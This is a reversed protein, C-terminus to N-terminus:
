FPGGRMAKDAMAAIEAEREALRRQMIEWAVRESHQRRLSPWDKWLGLREMEKMASLDARKWEWGRADQRAPPLDRRQQRRKLKHVGKVGLGLHIAAGYKDVWESTPDYDTRRDEAITSLKRARGRGRKRPDAPKGRRENDNREVM